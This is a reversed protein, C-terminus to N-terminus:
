RQSPAPAAPKAATPAPPPGFAADIAKAVHQPSQDTWPEQLILRGERSVLLVAPPTVGDSLLTPTYPESLHQFVFPPKWDLARLKERVAADMPRGQPFFVTMVDPRDFPALTRALESMLPASSPDAFVCLFGDYPYVAEMPVARLSDASSSALRPGIAEIFSPLPRRVKGLRIQNAADVADTAALPVEFIGYRGFDVRARRGADVRILVGRTGAPIAPKGAAPSWAAHLEVTYPWFRDNAALNDATVIPAKPDEAHHDPMEGQAAPAKPVSEAATAVPAAGLWVLAGCAAAVSRFTM